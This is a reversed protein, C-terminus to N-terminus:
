RCSMLVTMAKWEAGRSRLSGTDALDAAFHERRPLRALGM